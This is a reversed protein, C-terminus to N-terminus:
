TSRETDLALQDEPMPAPAILFDMDPKWDAITRLAFDNDIKMVVKGSLFPDLDGSGFVNATSWPFGAANNDRWLHAIGGTSLPTVLELNGIAGSTGQIFAPTGVPDGNRTLTATGDAVIMGAIGFDLIKVIGEDTLFLNEPKIDRHVIGEDHAFQLADCIQPVIALADKAQLSGSHIAQRLNVGDVFEMTLFYFEGAQGFDHVTVINPHSVEALVKAERAFREAFDPNAAHQPALIKM